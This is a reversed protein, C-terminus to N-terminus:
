YKRLHFKVSKQCERNIINRIKHPSHTCGRQSQIRTDPSFYWTHMMRKRTARVMPLKRTRFKNKAM